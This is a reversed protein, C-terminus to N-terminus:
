KTEMWFRVSTSRTIRCDDDGEEIPVAIILSCRLSVSIFYESSHRPSYNM